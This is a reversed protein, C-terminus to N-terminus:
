VIYPFEKIRVRGILVDVYQFSYKKPLEVGIEEICFINPYTGTIKVSKYESIPKTRSTNIIININGGDCFLRNIGNKIYEINDM